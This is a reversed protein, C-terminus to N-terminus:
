RRFTKVVDLVAEIVDDVSRDDLSADLPLSLMRDFVRMAVPFDDPAYGYKERYYSQTHLPIFHVSTGINRAKLEEIVQDRGIKLAEPRLRLVYLHWAHEAYPLEVPTELADSKGFAANYRRVVEKRRSHFGPLKQLQPLGLAAQLDMMNYKFGPLVIDYRWSGEKKYRKWADRNMGHLSIVRAKELLEKSGTLMGGEGTTMNKTAYFSFAVPNEGAGILKGKYKTPLAHAADEVLTLKHAACLERIPDLDVPHGAHHVVLIAKTKRTIAKEVLRPDLNLTAEEVDVLVPRAGVQEIVNLSAAFTMPTSIVEDGPGIDCAVLATHLAATASHLGLAAPAGTYKAFEAEFRATKPGSTLWGSRLTDVM